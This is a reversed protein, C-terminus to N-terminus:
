KPSCFLGRWTHCWPLSLKCRDRMFKWKYKAWVFPFVVPQFIVNRFDFNISLLGLRGRFNERFRLFMISKDGFGTNQRHNSFESRFSSWCLFFIAKEKQTLCLQQRHTLNPEWPIMNSSLVQKLGWLLRDWKIHNERLQVLSLSPNGISYQLGFIPRVSNWTTTVKRIQPVIINNHHCNEHKATDQPKQPPFSFKHSIMALEGKEGGGGVKADGRAHREHM